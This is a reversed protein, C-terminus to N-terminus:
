LNESGDWSVGEHLRPRRQTVTSTTTRQVSSTSPSLSRRVTSIPAALFRRNSAQTRPIRTWTQWMEDRRAAPTEGPGISSAPVAIDRGPTRPKESDSSSFSDCGEDGGESGSESRVDHENAITCASSPHGSDATSMRERGGRSEHLRLDPSISAPEIDSQSLSGSAQDTNPSSSSESLNKSRTRRTSSKSTPKASSSRHRSKKKEESTSFNPCTPQEGKAYVLTIKISKKGSSIFYSKPALSAKEQQLLAVVPGPLPYEMLEIYVVLFLQPDVSDLSFFCM